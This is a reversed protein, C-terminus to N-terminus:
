VVQKEYKSHLEYKDLNITESGLQEQLLNNVLQAGNYNHYDGWLKPQNLQKFFELNTLEEYFINKKKM